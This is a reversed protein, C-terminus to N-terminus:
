RQSGFKFNCEKSHNKWQELVLKHLIHSQGCGTSLRFSFSLFCFPLCFLVVVSVCSSLTSVRFHFVVSAWLSWVFDRYISSYVLSEFAIAKLEHEDVFPYM